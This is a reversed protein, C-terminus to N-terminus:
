ASFRIQCAAVIATPGLPSSSYPTNLLITSHFVNFIDIDGTVCSAGANSL